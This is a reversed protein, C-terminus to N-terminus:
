IIPCSIPVSRTGSTSSRGSGTPARSSNSAMPTACGPPSFASPVRLGISRTSRRADRRSRWATRPSTATRASASMSSAATRARWWARPGTITIPGAPLDTLVTGPATIRTEGEVYPYRVIADTDAVYLENGVLAVGFPSNLHDLFVTRLAPKGEGYRLLTIRNGGKAGSGAYGKVVGMIYDKPRNIPAKPGNSEVVLVDGNPLTFVSRPHQFGTALATIQLGPAVTPKQGNHWGEAPAVHMPPLLYEQPQPLEPHAGYQPLDPAKKCAGVALVAATACLLRLTARTM